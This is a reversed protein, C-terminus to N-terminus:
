DLIIEGNIDCSRFSAAMYAGPAVMGDSEYMSIPIKVLNASLTPKESGWEPCHLYFVWGDSCVNKIAWIKPLKKYIAAKDAKRKARLDDLKKVSNLFLVPDCCFDAAWRGQDGIVTINDKVPVGCLEREDMNISYPYYHVWNEQGEPIFGIITFTAENKYERYKLSKLFDNKTQPANCPAGESGYHLIGNKEFALLMKKLNLLKFKKFFIIFGSLPKKTDAKTPRNKGL